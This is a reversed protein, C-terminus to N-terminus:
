PRRGAEFGAIEPWTGRPGGDKQSEKIIRMGSKFVRTVGNSGGPHGLGVEM